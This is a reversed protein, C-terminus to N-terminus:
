APARRIVLLSAALLVLLPVGYNFEAWLLFPAGGLSSADLLVDLPEIVAYFGLIVLNALLATRAAPERVAITLLGLLAAALAPGAFDFLLHPGFALPVAPQAHFSNVTLPLFTFKWGHVVLTGSSGIAYLTVLHMVEHTALAILYVM